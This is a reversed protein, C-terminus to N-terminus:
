RRWFRWGKKNRREQEALEERRENILGPAVANVIQSAQELVDQRDEPSVGAPAAEVPRDVLSGHVWGVDAMRKEYTM